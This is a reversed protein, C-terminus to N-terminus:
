KTIIEFNYKHDARENKDRQDSGGKVLLGAVVSFTVM